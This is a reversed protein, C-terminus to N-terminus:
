RVVNAAPTVPLPAPPPAGGYVLDATHDCTRQPETGAVFQETRQSPCYPGALRGTEPDVAVSVIGSPPRFAETKGHVALASKMFETWVPLASKSGEVKLDRHDDYGVWVVCVLESTFGAFWGDRSTGTKGGAPASFGRQRVSAATGSRVVDELMSVMLYNVQPSLARRRLTTHRRIVNGRSDTILTLVTPKSYVGQNPFATYAGAVELPSAEYAGLAVSPTAKVSDPFGFRRAMSVVNQYGV